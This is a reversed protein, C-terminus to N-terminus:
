ELMTKARQKCPMSRAKPYIQGADDSPRQGSTAEDDSARRELEVRLRFAAVVLLLCFWLILSRALPPRHTHHAIRTPNVALWPRLM